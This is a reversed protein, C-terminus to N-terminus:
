LLVSKLDFTCINKAWLDSVNTLIYILRLPSLIFSFMQRNNKLEFTREKM